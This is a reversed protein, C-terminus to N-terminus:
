RPAPAPPAPPTLPPRVPRLPAGPALDATDASERLAACAKKSFVGGEKGQTHQRAVRSQPPTSPTATLTLPACPRLTDHRHASASLYANPRPAVPIVVVVQGLPWRVGQQRFLALLPQSRQAFPIPERNKSCFSLLLSQRDEEFHARNKLLLLLLLRRDEEKLYM